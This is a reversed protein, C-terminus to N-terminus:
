GLRSYFQCLRTGVIQPSFTAEWEARAHRCFNELIDRNQLLTTLKNMLDSPNRQDVVYGNVRDSVVDRYSAARSGIIALGYSLAQIAGFSAQEWIDRISIYVHSSGLFEVFQAQSITGVEVIAVGKAQLRSLAMRHPLELGGGILVLRIESAMPAPLGSLALLLTSLNNRPRSLRREAFVLTVKGDFRKELGDVVAPPSSPPVYAIPQHDNQRLDALVRGEAARTTLVIGDARRVGSYDLLRFQSWGIPAILRRLGNETRVSDLIMNEPTQYNFVSTVIPRGTPLPRTVAPPSTFHIVEVKPDILGRVWSRIALYKTVPGGVFALRAPSAPLSTRIAGIAREKPISYGFLQVACGVTLLSEAIGLTYESIGSDELLYPGVAV